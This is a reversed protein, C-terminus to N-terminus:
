ETTRRGNKKQGDIFRIKRQIQKKREVQKKRDMKINRFKIYLM